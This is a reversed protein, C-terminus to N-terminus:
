AEDNQRMMRLQFGNGMKSSFVAEIFSGAKIFRSGDQRISAPIAM